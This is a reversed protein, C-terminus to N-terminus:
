TNTQETSFYCRFGHQKTIEKQMYSIYIQYYVNTFFTKYVHKKYSYCFYSIAVYIPSKYRIIEYKLM